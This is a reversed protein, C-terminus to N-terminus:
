ALAILVILAAGVIASWAAVRFGIARRRKDHRAQYAGRESPPVRQRPAAFAPSQGLAALLGSCILVGAMGVVAGIAAAKSSM